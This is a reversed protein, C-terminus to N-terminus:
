LLKHKCRAIWEAPNAKVPCVASCLGCEMCLHLNLSRLQIERDTHDRPDFFRRAFLVFHCPGVFEDPKSGYIPCVALCCLCEICRGSCKITAQDTDSLTQLEMDHGSFEAFLNMERRAMDYDDRNVALDAIIPINRLPELRMDPVAPLRCSLGPMGNCMIGCVGCCANGCCFDFCLTEDTKQLLQLVQLVSMGEELEYRYTQDFSNEGNCSRSIIVNTKM